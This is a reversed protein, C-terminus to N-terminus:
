GVLKRNAERARWEERKDEMLRQFQRRMASNEELQRLATEMAESLNPPIHMQPLRARGSQDFEIHLMALADIISQATLKRGKNDMVNGVKEVAESITGYVMEAQQRAMDRAVDDLKQLISYLTMTPVEALEISFESGMDKWGAPEVEGSSRVFTRGDGEFYRVHKIESLAGLHLAMRVKMFDVLRAALDAKVGPYDPLM